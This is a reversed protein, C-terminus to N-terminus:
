QAPSKQGSVTCSCIPGSIFIGANTTFKGELSLFPLCSSSKTNYAFPMVLGAIRVCNLSSLPVLPVSLLLQSLLQM